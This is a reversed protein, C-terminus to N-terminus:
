QPLREATGLGVTGEMLAEAPLVVRGGPVPDAALIVKGSEKIAKGLAESGAKNNTSPDSFIVDFVIAKVGAATLRDILKAHLRRDSPMLYPQKLNEHSEDDMYVLTVEDIGISPRPALLLDYTARIWKESIPSLFLILGLVAAPAGGVLCALLKRSM